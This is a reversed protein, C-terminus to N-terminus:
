LDQAAVGSVAEALLRELEQSRSSLVQLEEEHANKLEEQRREFQQRLTVELEHERRVAEEAEAAAMELEANKVKDVLHLLRSSERAGDWLDQLQQRADELKTTPGVRHLWSDFDANRDTLMRSRLDCQSDNASTDQPVAIGGTLSPAAKSDNVFFDAVSKQSADIKKSKQLSGTKKADKTSKRSHLVPEESLVNTDIAKFPSRTSSPVMSKAKASKRTTVNRLQKGDPAANEDRSSTAAASRM